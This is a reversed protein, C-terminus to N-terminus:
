HLPGAEASPKPALDVTVTREEGAREVRLEITTRDALEGLLEHLDDARVLPRGDAAVILDGEAIGAAEAPSGEEVARVLLGDRESLGVARRLRRAAAPPTIAIGLRPRVVDQGRSLADVRRRFAEDAPLALYFGDGVRSTNIGIVRGDLSALPGGSSGPALPATHEVAGAVRRGRPGRFSREVASVYGVTVRASGSGTLAVGLVTMGLGPAAEAWEVAPLGGTDVELVALDGDADVDRLTAEATRGDAFTVALREARVNHANTLVKGESLVVGSGGRWRNGVRVVSRGLGGAVGQVQNSVEDALSM